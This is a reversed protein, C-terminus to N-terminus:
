ERTSLVLGNSSFPNWYKANINKDKLTWDPLLSHHLFLLNKKCKIIEYIFNNKIWKKHAGPNEKLLIPCNTSILVSIPNCAPNWTVRMICLPYPKWSITMDKTCFKRLKQAFFIISFQGFNDTKASFWVVSPKNM